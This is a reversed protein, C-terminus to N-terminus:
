WASEAASRIAAVFQCLSSAGKGFGNTTTFMPPGALIGRMRKRGVQRYSTPSFGNHAVLCIVGTERCAMSYVVANGFWHKGQWKLAM